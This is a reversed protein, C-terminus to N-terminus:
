RTQEHSIIASEVNRVGGQGPNLSVRSELVGHIRCDRLGLCLIYLFVLDIYPSVKYSRWIAHVLVVGTYFHKPNIDRAKAIVM